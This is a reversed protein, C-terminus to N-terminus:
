SGVVKCIEGPISVAERAKDFAQRKNIGAPVVYTAANIGASVLPAAATIETQGYTAMIKFHYHLDDRRSRKVMEPILRFCM